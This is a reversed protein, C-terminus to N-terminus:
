RSQSLASSKLKRFSVNLLIAFLVLENEHMMNNEGEQEVVETVFCFFSFRRDIKEELQTFEEEITKLQIQTTFTSRPISWENTLNRESSELILNM